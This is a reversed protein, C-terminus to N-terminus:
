KAMQKWQVLLEELMLEAKLPTHLYRLFDFIKKSFLLVNVNSIDITLINHNHKSSLRQNFRIQEFLYAAVYKLHSFWNNKAWQKSIELVTKNQELLQQLDDFMTIVEPLIKNELIEKASIPALNSLSLSLDIEGPESQMTNSLWDYAQQYDPTKIALKICRSKITPLLKGIESTTLIIVVKKPPEELTKLLANASAKNMKEANEIIVIRYQNRTTTLTVDKSLKRIQDVKIISKEASIISLDTHNGAKILECASCQDCVGADSLNECLGLHAMQKALEFKGVGNIGSLLIAHPIQQTQIMHHWQEINDQLWPYNSM